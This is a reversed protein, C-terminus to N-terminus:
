SELVQPKENGVDEEEMTKTKEYSGPNIAISYTCEKIKFIGILRDALEFMNNRLSVVIFQANNQTQLRIYQGIIGVNRYDLAADIEDM